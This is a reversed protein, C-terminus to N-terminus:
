CPFSHDYSTGVNPKSEFGGPMEGSHIGCSENNSTPIGLFCISGNLTRLNCERGTVHLGGGESYQGQEFSDSFCCTIVGNFSPTKVQGFKRGHACKNIAELLLSATM